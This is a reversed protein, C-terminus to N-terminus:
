MLLLPIFSLPSSPWKKIQPDRPVAIHAGAYASIFFKNLHKSNQFLLWNVIMPAAPKM